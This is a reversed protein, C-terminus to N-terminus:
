RPQAARAPMRRSKQRPEGKRDFPDGVTAVRQRTPLVGVSSRAPRVGCHHTTRDAAVRASAAPALPGLRGTVESPRSSAPSISRGSAVHRPMAPWDHRHRRLPDHRADKRPGEAHARKAPPIRCMPGRSGGAVRSLRATNGRVVAARAVGVKAPEGGRLPPAHPELAADWSTRM